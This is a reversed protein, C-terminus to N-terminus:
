LLVRGYLSIGQGATQSSSIANEINFTTVGIFYNEFFTKTVGLGVTLQGYGGYSLRPQVTGNYPLIFLPALYIKPIYNANIMTKIGGTLHLWDKLQRNYQLHFMTPLMAATKGSTINTNLLSGLSDLKMNSFLTDTTAFLDNIETGTFTYQDNTTINETNFWHIFGIDRIELSYRENDDEPTFSFTIDLATGIGNFKQLRKGTNKGREFELYTDLSISDGTESTFFRGRRLAGYQYNSGKIFSLHTSIHYRKDKLSTKMGAYIKEYTVYSYTFPALQVNDGALHKNGKFLLTFLHNSFSSHIYEKAQWGAKFLKNDLLTNTSYDM